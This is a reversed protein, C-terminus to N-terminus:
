QQQTGLPLPTGDYPCFKWGATMPRGCVPCHVAADRGPAALRMLFLEKREKGSPVAEVVARDGTASLFRPSWFSPFNPFDVGEKVGQIAGTRENFVQFEEGGAEIVFLGHGQVRHVIRRGNGSLEKFDVRDTFKSSLPRFGEKGFGSVYTGMGDLKRGSYFLSLTNGDNSLDGRVLWRDKIDTVKKIGKGDADMTYLDYDEKDASSQAGFLLKKGNGSLEFVWGGGTFPMRPYGEWVWAKEGLKPALLTRQASGDTRLLLIGSPMPWDRPGLHGKVLCAIEQGDHSIRYQSLSRWTDDMFGLKRWDHRALEENRLSLVKLGSGDTNAVGLYHDELSVPAGLSLSFVVKGGGGSIVPPKTGCVLFYAEHPPPAKLTGDTFIVKSILGDVQLVRVSAVKEGKTPDLLEHRYAVLKGAEDMSPYSVVDEKSFTLRQLQISEARGEGPVVLGAGAGFWLVALGLLMATGMNRGTIRDVLRM